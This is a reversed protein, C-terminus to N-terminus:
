ERGEEYNQAIKPLEKQDGNRGTDLDSKKQKFYVKQDTYTARTTNKSVSRMRWDLKQEERQWCKM